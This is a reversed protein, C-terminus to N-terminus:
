HLTGILFTKLGQVPKATGAYEANFAATSDTGCLTLVAQQDTSHQTLWPTFDYVSGNITTWCNTATHHLAITTMTYSTMTASTAAGLVTGVKAPAVKTPPKIKSVKKTPVIKKKTHTTTKSQVVTKAHTTKAVAHDQSPLIVMSLMFISLFITIINKKM